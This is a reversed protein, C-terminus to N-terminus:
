VTAVSIDPLCARQATRQFRPMSTLHVRHAAFGGQKGVLREQREGFNRLAKADRARGGVSPRGVTGEGDDAEPTTWEQANVRVCYLLHKPL